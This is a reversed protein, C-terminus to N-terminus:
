IRIDSNQLKLIASKENGKYLNKYNFNTKKTIDGIKVIIYVAILLDNDFRVFGNGFEKFYLDLESVKTPIKEKLEKTFNKDFCLNVLM